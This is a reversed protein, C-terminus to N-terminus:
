DFEIEYGLDLCLERLAIKLMDRIFTLYEMRRTISKRSLRTSRRTCFITSARARWSSAWFGRAADPFAASAEWKGSAASFNM